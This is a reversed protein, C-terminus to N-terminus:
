RKFKRLKKKRNEKAIQLGHMNLLFVLMNMQTNNLQDETEPYWEKWMTSIEKHRTFQNAEFYIKKLIGAQREDLHNLIFNADDHCSPHHNYHKAGLAHLPTPFHIESM